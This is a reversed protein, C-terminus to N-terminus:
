DAWCQFWETRSVGSLHSAVRIHKGQVCLHWGSSFQSNALIWFSGLAQQHSVQHNRLDDFLFTYICILIIRKKLNREDFKQRLM